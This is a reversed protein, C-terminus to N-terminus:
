ATPWRGEGISITTAATSSSTTCRTAKRAFIESHRLGAYTAAIGGFSSGAVTTLKSDSTVEDFSLRELLKVEYSGKETQSGGQEREEAVSPARLELRYRGAREAIFALTRKGDRPGGLNRLRSGDPTFVAALM